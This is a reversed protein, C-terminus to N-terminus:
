CGAIYKKFKEFETEVFAKNYKGMDKIIYPVYGAKQIESIKIKDRNQVQKVSHTEKIKKYHWPGNWLIAVKFDEIIIDADWGNFMLENNLVKSFKTKCLEYFYIENKSRRSDGQLVVSKRGSESMRRRSEDSLFEKRHTKLYNSCEKSCVQRTNIGKSYVYKTKCVKCIRQKKLLSTHKKVSNSIKRKTEESHITNINNVITACSNSCYKNKRQEWSLAKGCHQCVNPNEEYKLRIQKSRYQNQCSTNCFKNNVDKGCNLCKNMIIIKSCTVPISGALGETQFVSM